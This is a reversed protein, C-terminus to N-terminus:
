DASRSFVHTGGDNDKTQPAWPPGGRGGGSAWCFNGRDAGDSTTDPVSPFRPGFLGYHWDAHGGTEGACQRMNLM